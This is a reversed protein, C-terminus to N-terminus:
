FAIRDIMAKITRIQKGNKNAKFIFINLFIAFLTNYYLLIGYHMDTYGWWDWCGNPNSFSFKAQPYLIIFNNLDAMQNYGTNKAFIDGILYKAQLCGHFLVHLKCEKNLNM